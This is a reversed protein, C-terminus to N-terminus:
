KFYLISAAAYGEPSFDMTLAQMAGGPCIQNNNINRYSFGKYRHAYGSYAPITVGDAEGGILKAYIRSDTANAITSYFV